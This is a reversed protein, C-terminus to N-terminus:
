SSLEPNLEYFKQEINILEKPHSLFYKHIYREYSGGPSGVKSINLFPRTSLKLDINRQSSNIHFHPPNHDGSHVYIRMSEKIDSKILAKIILRDKEIDILHDLKVAIDEFDYLKEVNQDSYM